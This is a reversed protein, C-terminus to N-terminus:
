LNRKMKGNSPFFNREASYRHVIVTVNCQATCRLLSVGSTYNMLFVVIKKKIFHGYKATGKSSIPLHLDAAIRKRTTLSSDRYEECFTQVAM